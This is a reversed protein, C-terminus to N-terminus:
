NVQSFNEKWKENVTNKIQSLDWYVMSSYIQVDSEWIFKGLKSSVIRIFSAITIGKNIKEKNIRFSLSLLPSCERTLLLWERETKLSKENEREWYLVYKYAWAFLPNFKLESSFRKGLFNCNTMFAVFYYYFIHFFCFQISIAHKPIKWKDLSFVFRIDSNKGIVLKRVDWTLVM